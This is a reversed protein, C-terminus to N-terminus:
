TPWSPARSRRLTRPPQPARGRAGARARGAGDRGARHRHPPAPARRAYARHPRHLPDRPARRRPPHARPPPRHHRDQGRHAPAEGGAAAPLDASRSSRPCRPRSSRRHATEGVLRYMGESWRRRGTVLDESWSGIDGLREAEALTREREESEEAERIRAYAAIFLILATSGVTFLFYAPDSQPVETAVAVVGAVVVGGLLFGALPGIRDYAFGLLTWAGFYTFLFGIALASSLDNLIALVGIWVVVGSLYTALM